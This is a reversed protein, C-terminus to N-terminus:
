TFICKAARIAVNRSNCMSTDLLLGQLYEEPYTEKLVEKLVDHISQPCLFTGNSLVLFQAEEQIWIRSLNSFDGAGDGHDCHYVADQHWISLLEQELCLYNRHIKSINGTVPEYPMHSKIETYINSSLLVRAFELM